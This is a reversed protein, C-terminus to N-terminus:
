PMSDSEVELKFNISSVFIRLVELLAVVEAESSEMYDVHKSFMALVKGDSNCLIGGVGTPGPKGRFVGMM